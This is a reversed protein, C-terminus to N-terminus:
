ETPAHVQIALQIYTHIVQKVAGTCLQLGLNINGWISKLILTLTKHISNPSKYKSSQNNFNIQPKHKISSSSHQFPPITATPPPLGATSPPQAVAVKRERVNTSPPSLLPSPPEQFKLDITQVQELINKEGVEDWCLPSRCKRGYITKSPAM